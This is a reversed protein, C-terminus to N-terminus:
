HSIKYDQKSKIWLNLKQETKTKEEVSGDIGKIQIVTAIMM